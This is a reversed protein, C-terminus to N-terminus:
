HLRRLFTYTAMTSHAESQARESYISIFVIHFIDSSSSSINKM